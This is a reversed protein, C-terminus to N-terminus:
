SEKERKEAIRRVAAIMDEASGDYFFDLFERTQAEIFRRDNIASSYLYKRGSQVTEVYGKETLHLLFTSITTRKWSLEYEEEIGDVVEKLGVPGDARQIFRFVLMESDTIDSFLMAEVQRETYIGIYEIIDSIYSKQATLPVDGEHM